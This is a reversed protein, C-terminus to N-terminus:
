KVTGEIEIIPYPDHLLTAEIGFSDVCSQLRSHITNMVNSYHNANAKSNDALRAIDNQIDVLIRQRAVSLHDLLSNFVLVAPVKHVSM